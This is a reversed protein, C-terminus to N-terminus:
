LNVIQYDGCCGVNIVESKGIKVKGKGEHIHGCFVYKPQYRKIYELVVKSGAHKGQWDKPADKFDVKDLFRYPPIHTVLIDVKGFHKLIHKAKETYKRARKIRKPDEEGFEKVWSNDVFWDLFGVRLGGINRFSNRVLHFNSLSKMGRRLYPLKLKHKKEEQKVHSNRVLSMAVNGLLSYTPAIMSFHSLVKMSSSYIENYVKKTFSKSYDLVKLGKKRRERDGFAKKRISDSKALDGLILVADFKEKPIKKPLVGHPDGVVLLKM